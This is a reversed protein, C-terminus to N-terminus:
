RVVERALAVVRQVVEDVTLDTTDITVADAAVTLPDHERTSDAHDRATIEAEIVAVDGGSEAARRRAREHASATVYIKLGADPFVATGIDRGELVGGERDLGWERQRVRLIERVQPNAAVASVAGTVETGRIEATVDTGDVVVTGADIEISADAAAESVAATDSPDLGRRLVACAVARYMAGTDLHDLGLEAAVLRSLTSKGSGAPGDVAIVRQSGSM